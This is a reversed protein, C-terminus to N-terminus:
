WLTIYSAMRPFDALIWFLLSSVHNYESSMGVGVLVDGEYCLVLATNYLLPIQKRHILHVTKESMGLCKGPNSWCQDLEYAETNAPPCM